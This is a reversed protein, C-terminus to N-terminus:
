GESRSRGERQGEAERCLPGEAGKWREVGSGARRARGPEVLLQKIIRERRDMSGRTRHAARHGAPDTVGQVQPDVHRRGADIPKTM